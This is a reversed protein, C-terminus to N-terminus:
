RKTKIATPKNGSVGLSSEPMQSDPDDNTTPGVMLTLKKHQLNM